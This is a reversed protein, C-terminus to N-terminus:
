VLFQLCVCTERAGRLCKRRTSGKKSKGALQMSEHDRLLMFM